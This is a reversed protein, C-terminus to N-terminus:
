ITKLRNVANIFEYAMGLARNMEEDANAKVILISIVDNGIISKFSDDANIFCDMFKNFAENAEMRNDEQKKIENIM